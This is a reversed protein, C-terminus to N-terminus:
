RRRRGVRALALVAGPQSLDVSVIRGIAAMGANGPACLVQRERVEDILTAALAHERAGAGLVLITM